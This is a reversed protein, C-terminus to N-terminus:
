AAAGNGGGAHRRAEVFEILQAAGLPASYFYGQAIDCGQALLQQAQVETEVGKAIVIMGLAHSMAIIANAIALDDKDCTIDNIFCRAIKVEDLPFQKLYSLSSYGMGFDDVSLHIGLDKLATLVKVSRASNEMLASESLEVGLFVGDVDYCRLKEELVHAIDAQRFQAPSLNVSIGPPEVGAAKWVQLQRCVQELAWEGVPGILGTEEAIQIFRESALTGLRPHRWRLLAEAGIVEGAWLAVQPQYVLFLEEREMAQRLESELTLREIARPNMEGSFLRYTNKGDEKARSVATDANKILGTADEGDDPYFSVGISVTIFLERGEIRFPELLTDAIRQAMMDMGQQDANDVLIAFEDGGLRALMDEARVCRALQEAALRLLLDGHDHGLTENIAKFNDIDLSMVALGRGERAGTEVAHKLRECFLNRNPLLTLPDRYALSELRQQMEKYVTVDNFIGVYNLLEGAEDKVARVTVRAAYLEGNKRRDWVEGQWQGNQDIMEWMKRQYETDHERSAFMASRGRLIEERSYGTMQLFAENIAVIHRRADAMVIGEAACDFVKAALRLDNEAQKRLSIDQVFGKISVVRGQDDCIGEGQGNVYRVRGDALVIRYDIDYRGGEAMAISMTQIVAERDAEHIYDLFAEYSPAHPQPQLGFIPFLADSWIFEASGAEWQWSGVGAHRQVRESFGAGERLAAEARKRQTVDRVVYFQFAQGDISVSHVGVEVDRQRGDRGTVRMETMAGSSHLEADQRGFWAEVGAAAGAYVEAPNEGTIACYADNVDVVRGEADIAALGDGSLRLMAALRQRQAEHERRAAIDEAMLILHRRKGGSVTFNLHLPISSGDRRILRVELAAQRIEGALLARLREQQLPQDDAATIQQLTRAMLERRRYGTLSCLERNIQLWNGEPTLYAVGVAATEFVRRFCFEQVAAPSRSNMRTQSKIM